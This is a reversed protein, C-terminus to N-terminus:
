TPEQECNHLASADCVAAMIPWYGTCRCINGAMAMRVEDRKLPHDAQAVLACAAVVVGPTCIGCQAGGRVAMAKRVAQGVSTDALGEVTIVSKGQCQHTFILCSCVAEGDLLVTCAGCDGSGCGIKTGTLELDTRLTDALLADPATRVEVLSGNVTLETTKEAPDGAAPATGGAAISTSL